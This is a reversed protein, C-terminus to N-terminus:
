INNLKESIISLEKSINNIDKILELNNDNLENTSTTTAVTEQIIAMLTEINDNISVSANKINEIENNLISCEEYTENTGTSIDEFITNTQNILENQKQFGDALYKISNDLKDTYELIMKVNNNIKDASEKSSNSLNRIENAVVAFGRGQEGARAAEISANLSLLNTQDAIGNIINIMEVIDKVKNSLENLCDISNKTNENNDEVSKNLELINQNGEKVINLTNLATNVFNNSLNETNGISTLINQSMNSQETIADVSNNTGELVEKFSLKSTEYSNNLNDIKDNIVKIKNDLINSLEKASKLVEESKEKESNIVKIKSENLKNTLTATFVSFISCLIICALQIETDTLYEPSSIKDLIFLEYLAYLVNIGSISSNYIKTFKVNNFMMSVILMPIVFVFSLITKSTSLAFVYFLLYGIALVYKSKSNSKDKFYSILFTIFPVMVILSFLLVYLLTRSGKILEIIYSIILVGGTIGYLKMTLENISRNENM